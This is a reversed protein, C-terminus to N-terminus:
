AAEVSVIRFMLEEGSPRRLTLYEGPRFVQGCLRRLPEDPGDASHIGLAGGELRVLNGRWDQRNPWFRRVEWPHDVPCADLDPRGQADLCVVLELGTRTDGNPQGPGNALLATVRCLQFDAM